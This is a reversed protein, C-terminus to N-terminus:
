PSITFPESFAPPLGVVGVRLRYTGSAPLSLAPLIAKGGSITQISAIATGEVTVQANGSFSAEHRGYADQIAIQVPPTIPQGQTGDSPQVLFVVRRGPRHGVARIWAVKGAAVVRLVNVSDNLDPGLRWGVKARGESNSRQVSDSVAGGGSDVRFAVRVDPLGQGSSDAVLFEPATRVFANLPAHQSDGAVVSLDAGAARGLIRRVDARYISDHSLADLLAARARPTNISDLAIAARSQYTAIYNGVYHEVYKLSDIGGPSTRGYMAEAQMRMNALRDSPPGRLADELRGVAREGIALVSDLEGETCEECLLWRDVRQTEEPTLGAPPACGALILALLLTRGNM